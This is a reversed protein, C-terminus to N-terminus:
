GGSSTDGVAGVGLQGLVGELSVRRARLTERYAANDTGAIETSLDGLSTRLLDRLESAQEDTLEIHM